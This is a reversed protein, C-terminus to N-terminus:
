NYTDELLEPDPYERTGAAIATVEYMGRLVM